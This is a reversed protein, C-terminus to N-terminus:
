GQPEPLATAGSTLTTQCVSGLVREDSADARMLGVLRTFRGPDDVAALLTWDRSDELAAVAADRRAEDGDARADTFEQAWVCGLPQVIQEALGSRENWGAVSPGEWGSPATADALLEDAAAPTEEPTLVDDPLAAAFGAADVERLSGVLEAFEAETTLAADIRLGYGDVVPLYAMQQQSEYAVYPVQQGLVEITGATTGADGVGADALLGRYWRTVTWGLSLERGGNGYTLSVGYGPDTDVHTVEWGPADLVVYSSPGRWPRADAEVDGRPLPDPEVPPAEPSTVPRPTPAPDDSATASAAPAPTVVPGSPGTADGALLVTPVAVVAAVSAAAALAVPWRRRAGTERALLERLLDDLAGDLRLADVEADTIPPAPLDPTSTM